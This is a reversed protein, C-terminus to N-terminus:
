YCILYRYLDITCVDIVVVSGCITVLTTGGSTQDSFVQLGVQEASRQIIDMTITHKSNRSKVASKLESRLTRILVLTPTPTQRAYSTLVPHELSILITYPIQFKGRFKKIGTRTSPM